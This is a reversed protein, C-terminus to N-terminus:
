PLFTTTKPLDFKTPLGTDISISAFLAVTVIACEFVYFKFSIVFFASIKIAAIPLAFNTLLSKMLSPTVMISTPILLHSSLFNYPSTSKSDTFFISIFIVGTGPPTPGIVIVINNCLVINANSLCM